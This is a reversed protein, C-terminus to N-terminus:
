KDEPVPFLLSTVSHLCSTDKRPKLDLVLCTRTESAIGVVETNKYCVCGSDTVNRQPVPPSIVTVHFLVYSMSKNNIVLSIIGTNEYYLTCTTKRFVSTYM